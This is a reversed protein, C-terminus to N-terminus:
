GDNNRRWEIKDACSSNSGKKWILKVLSYIRDKLPHPLYLRRGLNKFDRNQMIRCMITYGANGCLEYLFRNVVSIKMKEGILSKWLSDYDRNEIISGAALFGTWIARRIGIGFLYDQFGGAEGVFLTNNEVATKPLYFDVYNVTESIDTMDLSIIDQFKEVAKKSYDHIQSFNKLIATGITAKKNIVFLYAFGKPAIKNNLIVKYTNEISTNFVIEKSVGAASKGGTAAIDAKELDIKENYHIRAGADLAQKTLGSDITNEANGRRVLYGFPKLSKMNYLNLKPDYFEIKMLPQLFFNIEINMRYLAPFLEEEETYNELIQFSNKFRGGATKNKEYVEVDYGAKALNIAATLGSPGAGAITITKKM